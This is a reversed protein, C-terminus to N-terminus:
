PHSGIVDCWAFLSGSCHACQGTEYKRGKNPGSDCEAIKRDQYDHSAAKRCGDWGEPGLIENLEIDSDQVNRMYTQGPEMGFSPSLRTSVNVAEALSLNRIMSVTGNRTKTLVHWNKSEIDVTM